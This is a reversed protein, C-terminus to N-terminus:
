RGRRQASPARVSDVIRKLQPWDRVAGLDARLFHGVVTVHDPIEEIVGEAKAARLTEGFMHELYLRRRKTAGGTYYIATAEARTAANLVCFQYSLIINDDGTAGEMEARAANVWESDFGVIVETAVPEANNALKRRTSTPGADGASLAFSTPNTADDINFLTISIPSSNAALDHPPEM